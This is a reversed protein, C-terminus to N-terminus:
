PRVYMRHTYDLTLFAENGHSPPETIQPFDAVAISKRMEKSGSKKVVKQGGEIDLGASRRRITPGSEGSGGNGTKRLPGTILPKPRPDFSNPM